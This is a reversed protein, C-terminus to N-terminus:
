NGVRASFEVTLSDLSPLVAPLIRVSVRGARVAPDQQALQLAAEADEAELISFGVIEGGDTVPGALKYRRWEIQERLFALQAPMLAEAGEPDDWREGKLLFCLYYPKLNRPIDAPRLDAAPVAGSVPGSAESPSSSMRGLM